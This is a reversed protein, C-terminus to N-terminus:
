VRVMEATIRALHASWKVKHTRWEEIARQIACDDVSCAESECRHNEICEACLRTATRELMGVCLMDVDTRVRNCLACPERRPCSSGCRFSAAPLKMNREPVSPVVFLRRHL